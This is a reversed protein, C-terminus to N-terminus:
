RDVVWTTECGKSPAFVDFLNLLSQYGDADRNADVEAWACVRTGALRFAVLGQEKRGSADLRSVSSFRLIVGSLRRAKNGLDEMRFHLTSGPEYAGVRDTLSPPPTLTVSAGSSLHTLRVDRTRMEGAVAVSSVRWPGVIGCHLTSADPTVLESSQLAPQCNVDNIRIFDDPFKRPPQADNHALVGLLARLNLRSSLSLSPDKLAEAVIAASGANNGQLILNHAHVVRRDFNGSANPPFWMGHFKPTAFAFNQFFFFQSLVFLLLASPLSGLPSDPVVVPPLRYGFGWITEIMDARTKKRIQLVHTDVTRNTGYNNEGWVRDLIEERSFVKGPNELFFRALNFEMRTFEINAGEFSAQCADLDLRLGHSQIVHSNAENSIKKENEKQQRVQLRLRALLESMHFPKQVYDNSGCELATVIDVVDTRASCFLIPTSAGSARWSKLLDLGQGDPLTWDLLAVDFTDLSQSFASAYTSCRTVLFGNETLRTTVMSAIGDDDEVYLIKPVWTKM